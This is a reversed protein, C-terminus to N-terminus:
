HSPTLFNHRIRIFTKGGSSDPIRMIGITTTNGASATLRFESGRARTTLSANPGAKEKYFAIVQEVSDSTFYTASILTRGALEGRSGTLSPEAGPYIAVGLDDKTFTSSPVNHMSKALYWAGLGIAGAGIVGVGVFVAITILVAKAVRSNPNSTRNFAGVFETQALPAYPQQTNGQPAQNEQPDSM